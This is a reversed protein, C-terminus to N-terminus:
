KFHSMIIWTCNGRLIMHPEAIRINKDLVELELMLSPIQQVNGHSRQLDETLQQVRSILEQRAVVLSATGFMIIM